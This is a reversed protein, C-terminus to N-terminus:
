LALELTEEAPLFTVGAALAAGLFFASPVAFASVFVSSTAFFTAPRFTM